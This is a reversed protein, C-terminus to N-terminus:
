TSSELYLFHCRCEKAAKFKNGAQDFYEAAQEYKSSSGFLSWKKLEKEGQQVLKVASAALAM